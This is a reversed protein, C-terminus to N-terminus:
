AVGGRRMMLELAHVERALARTPESWVDQTVHRTEDCRTCYRSVVRCTDLQVGFPKTWRHAGVRCRIRDLRTM